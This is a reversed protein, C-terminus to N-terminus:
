LGQRIEVSGGLELIPCSEAIEEAEDYDDAKVIVFGGMSEKIESYPGDTIAGVRVVKGAAEIRQPARALVDASALSGYWEQWLKLHEQFQEPTPQIDATKYDRRFILVFESM